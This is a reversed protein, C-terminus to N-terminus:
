AVSIREEAAREHREHEEGDAVRHAPQADREGPERRADGGAEGEREGRPRRVDGPERAEAEAREPEGDVGDGRGSQRVNRKTFLCGCKTQGPWCWLRWGG